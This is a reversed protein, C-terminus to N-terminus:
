YVIMATGPVTTSGQKTDAASVFLDIKGDGNFDGAPGVSQSFVTGATSSGFLTSGPAFVDQILVDVYPMASKGGLEPRPAAVRVAVYTSGGPAFYGRAHVLDIGGDPRGSFNGIARLGAHYDRVTFGATHTNVKPLGAVAGTNTFYLFKGVNKAIDAGSVFYLLGEPPTGAAAQHQIALDPEPKGDFEIVDVMSTAFGPIASIFAPDGSLRVAAADESGKGSQDSSLTIETDGKLPRGRVVFAQSPSIGQSIFLDDYQVAGADTLVNGAASVNGGFLAAGNELRRITLVNAAARSASDNLNITVPKSTSWAASGPVVYVRDTTISGTTPGYIALDNVPNQGVLDGNFNRIVNVRNVGFAATAPVNSITVAATTSLLGGKVGVFVQVSRPNTGTGTGVVLDAIGDGTLDGADIVSSMGATNTFCQFNAGATGDVKVDALV